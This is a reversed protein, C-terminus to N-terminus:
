CAIHQEKMVGFESHSLCCCVKHAIADGVASGGAARLAASLGSTPQAAHQIDTAARCMCIHRLVVM